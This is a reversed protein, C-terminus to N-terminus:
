NLQSLVREVDLGLIMVGLPVGADSNLPLSLQVQFHKSSDDYEVENFIVADGAQGFANQFKAEDGQWYDSTLDSTALNYGRNDTVIVETVLGDAQKKIDRLQASLEQDLISIAFSLNNTKYAEIWQQDLSQLVKDSLSAAIKNRKVLRQPLGPLSRWRELKRALRQRISAQEWPSLSFRTPSCANIATNFRAMFGPSEELFSESFSVGLPMYRYFRSKFQDADLKLEQVARYFYDQDALIVDIRKTKLLKILQPLNNAAIDLSYGAEGLWIEQQSGLIAGLKFGERWSEPEPTEVRWFWYWNELLLPASMVAYPEMERSPIATFFGDVRNNKVEQYARRWPMVQVSYNIGLGGFICALQPLVKRTDEDQDNDASYSASLNTALILRNAESAAAASLPAQAPPLLTQAGADVAICAVLSLLLNRLAPLFM